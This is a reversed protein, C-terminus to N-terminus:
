TLQQCGLQLAHMNKGLSAEAVLFLVNPAPMMPTIFSVVGPDLIRTSYL